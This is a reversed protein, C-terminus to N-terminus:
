RVEAQNEATTNGLTDRQRGPASSSVVSDSPPILIGVGPRVAEFAMTYGAGVEHWVRTLYYFGSHHGVGVVEILQRARITEIGVLRGSAHSIWETARTYGRVQSRGEEEFQEHGQGVIFHEARDGDFQAVDTASRFESENRSQIEKSVVDSDDDDSSVSWSRGTLRDVGSRTWSTGYVWPDVMVTFRALESDQGRYFLTIESDEFQPEHFHLVGEEVYLEYGYLRARDQLFVWDTENAQM